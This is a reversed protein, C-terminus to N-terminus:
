ESKDPIACAILGLVVPTMFFGIFYFVWRRKMEYGKMAIVDVLFRIALVYATLLALYFALILVLAVTSMGLVGNM